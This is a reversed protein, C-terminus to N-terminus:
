AVFSIHLTCLGHYGSSVSNLSTDITLNEMISVSLGMLLVGIKRM